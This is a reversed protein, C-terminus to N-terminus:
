FTWVFLKTSVSMTFFLDLRFQNVVIDFIFVEVHKVVFCLKTDQVEGFMFLILTNISMVPLVIASIWRHITIFRKRAYVPFGFLHNIVVEMATFITGGTIHAMSPFFLGIMGHEVFGVLTLILVTPFAGTGVIM